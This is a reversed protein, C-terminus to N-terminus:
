SGRLRGLLGRNARAPEEERKEPRRLPPLPIIKDPTAEPISTTQPQQTELGPITDPRKTERTLKRTQGVELEVDQSFDMLSVQKIEANLLDDLYKATYQRIVQKKEPHISSIEYELQEILTEIIGRKEITSVHEAQQRLAVYPVVLRALVRLIFINKAEFVVVLPYNKDALYAVPVDTSDNLGTNLMYYLETYTRMLFQLHMGLQAHQPPMIEGVMVLVGCDLLHHAKNAVRDNFTIAPPELSGTKQHMLMKLITELRNYQTNM